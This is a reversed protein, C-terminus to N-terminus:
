QTQDPQLLRRFMAMIAPQPTRIPPPGAYQEWGGGL